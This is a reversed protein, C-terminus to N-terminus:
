SQCINFKSLSIMVQQVPQHSIFWVIVVVAATSRSRRRARFRSAFPM